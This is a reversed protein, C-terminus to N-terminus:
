SVGPSHAISSFDDSLGFTKTLTKQTLEEVTGYLTVEPTAWAKKQEM